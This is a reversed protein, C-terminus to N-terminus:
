RPREMTAHGAQVIQENVSFVKGVKWIVGVTRGFSLVQKINQGRKLKVHVFVKTGVPLMEQMWRKAAIGAQRQEETGRNTEYCWVDSLRVDAEFDRVKVVVTDGDIVRVVTAPSLLGHPPKEM